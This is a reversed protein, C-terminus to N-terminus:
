KAAVDGSACTFSSYSVSKVKGQGCTKLAQDTMRQLQAADRYGDTNGIVCASLGLACMTALALQKM